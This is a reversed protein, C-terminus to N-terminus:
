QAARGFSLVKRDFDFNSLEFMASTVDKKRGVYHGKLIMEGVNPLPIQSLLNPLSDFLVRVDFIGGSRGIPLMAATRSLTCSFGPCDIGRRACSSPRQFDEVPRIKRRSKPKCGYLIWSVWSSLILSWLCRRKNASQTESRKSSSGLKPLFIM